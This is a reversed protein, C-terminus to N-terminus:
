SKDVLPIRARNATMVHDTARKNAAKQERIFEITPFVTYTVDLIKNGAREESTEFRDIVKEDIAEDLCSVMKKRNDSETSQQLLGSFKADSYKFHYSTVMSAQKFRNILRRYIWRTLQEDCRMLRDINFQRYELKNISRTIFLPLRAAHHANRDAVYEDRGVTVLDQLIAGNWVEKGNQYYTLICRSMIELAQKIQTINRDRNRAGIEKQIMRLTFRVWTESNVVDHLGYQQDCMIKKLAEEVFEETVGPFFAKYSGDKQKILAPHIVVQCPIDYHRFEWEFPNAHGSETRLKKMQHPTFFYKPISEWLEVTNSVETGDNAVFRGFLDMQVSSAVEQPPKRKSQKKATIEKTM